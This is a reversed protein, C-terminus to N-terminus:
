FLAACEPRDGKLWADLTATYDAKMQHYDRDTEDEVRKLVERAQDYEADTIKGRKRLFKLLRKNSIAVPGQNHGLALHIMDGAPVLPTPRYLDEQEDANLDNAKRLASFLPAYQEDGGKGPPMTLDQVMKFYIQHRSREGLHAANLTGRYSGNHCDTCTQKEGMAPGYYEPIISGDGWDFPRHQKMWLNLKKATAMGAADTSGYAPVIDRMGSPHCKYCSAIGTRYVPNKGFLDRWYEVFHLKARALEVVNGAADKQSHEVGMFDILHEVTGKPPLTFLMWRDFLEGPARILLRKFSLFPPNPLSKSVFPVCDWGKTQCLSKWDSPLGNALEPPFSIMEKPQRALYEDNSLRFQMSHGPARTMRQNSVFNSLNDLCGTLQPAKLLDACDSRSDEAKQELNQWAAYVKGDQGVLRHLTKWESDGFKM